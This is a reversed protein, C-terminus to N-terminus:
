ESHDSEETSPAADVSEGPGATEADSVADNTERAIKFSFNQRQGGLELSPVIVSFADGEALDASLTLAFEATRGEGVAVFKADRAAAEGGQVSVLAEVDALAVACDIPEGAKNETQLFFRITNDTLPMIEAHFHTAGDKHHTHGISVVRGGHLPKGHRHGHAHGHAHSGEFNDDHEHEHDDGASHQHQHDHTFDEHMDTTIPDSPDSCGSLVLGSLALGCLALCLAVAPQRLFSHRISTM